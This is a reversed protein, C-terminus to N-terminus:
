KMVGHKRLLNDLYAPSEPSVSLADAILKETDKGISIDYMEAFTKKLLDNFKPDAAMKGYAERLIQMVSDPTGPPAATFKFVAQPALAAIYGDMALPPLKVDGLLEFFTPVNAFDPRRSFKGDHYRGIQVIIEALGEEALNKLNQSDGFMDVEGRRFALDIEGTGGFGTVWRVNWGLFERGYLPPMTWTEEGTRTGVIVPAARPDTLRRLADKRIGVVPGAEGINGIAAIKKMDYKVIERGRQQNAIVSSSGHLWTLGDPKAREFFSNTAVVGGAGPQNRVLIRPNGPIYRPLYAAVARATSDTGGGAATAALMEISKGQFYDTGVPRSEPKATPKAPAPAPTGPQTAPKTAETKPTAVPAPPSAVAPAPTPPTCSLLVALAVTLSSLSFALKKM